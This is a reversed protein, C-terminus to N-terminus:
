MRITLVNLGLMNQYRVQEALGYIMRIGINKTIDEPDIIRSREEPDFPVCDDRIRLILDDAKRVVRIDVAHKKRDKPFGHAVVNGAMEEMALGALESKRKDFGRALCFAEVQQAVDVVEEMSAMTMDMRDDDEAGFSDPLALVDEPTEPSRFLM